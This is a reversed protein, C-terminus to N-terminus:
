GPAVESKEIVIGGPTIVAPRIFNNDFNTRGALILAFVVTELSERLMELVLALANTEHIVFHVLM